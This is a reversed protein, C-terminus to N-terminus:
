EDLFNVEELANFVVFIKEDNSDPDAPNLFFGQKEEDYNIVRGRLLEGDEFKVEVKEGTKPSDSTFEKRDHYDERGELNKVYFVAKLDDYAVEEITGDSAIAKFTNETLSIHRMIRRKKMEGDTYRLVVKQYKDTNM